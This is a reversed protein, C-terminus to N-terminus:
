SHTLLHNLNANLMYTVIFTYSKYIAPLNTRSKYLFNGVPKKLICLLTPLRFVKLGKEKFMDNLNSLM